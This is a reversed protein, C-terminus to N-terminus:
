KQYEQKDLIIKLVLGRNPCKHKPINKDFNGLNYQVNIDLNVLKRKSHKYIQLM